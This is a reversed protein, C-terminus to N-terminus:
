ASACRRHEIAKAYADRVSSVTRNWQFMAAREFGRAILTAATAEEDIVREIAAALADADRPDILLGADGVVEPLAGARSAIVPVGITMAELVPMGFGEEFSPQVLLRAGEYLSRRREPAIYGVHEVHRQLPGRRIRDLWPRAHETPRGALVLKPVERRGAIKEYANLLGGINKRPELTGFFLVYGDSPLSERRPWDPAGPSCISMRDRPVGLQREIEGATFESVTIIHDARQAHAAALSPYDRRIEARTREPHKFFDLDHITVIRAAEAPMLLPHLSHAVDFTGGALREISPWQLRHWLFNLASVPVKRDVTRAGRLDEDFAFRDKWSSSFLTLDVTPAQSSALLGAAVRHAYEGVGTRHRLAARYDM